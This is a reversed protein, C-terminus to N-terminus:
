TVRDPFFPLRAFGSYSIECVRRRIASNTPSHESAFLYLQVPGAAGQNFRQKQAVEPKSLMIRTARSWGPGSEADDENQELSAHGWLASHEDIDKVMEGIADVAIEKLGPGM